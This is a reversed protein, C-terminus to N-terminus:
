DKGAINVHTVGDLEQIILKLNRDRKVQNKRNRKRVNKDYIKIWEEEGIFNGNKDYGVPQIKNVKHRRKIDLTTAM